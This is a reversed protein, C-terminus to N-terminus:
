ADTGISAARADAAVAPPIILDLGSEAILEAAVRDRSAVDDFALILPGTGASVRLGPRAGRFMTVTGVSLTTLEGLGLAVGEPAGIREVIVTSDIPIDPEAPEAPEAPQAGDTPEAPAADTPGDVAAHTPALERLVFRRVVASVDRVHTPGAPGRVVGTLRVRISDAGVLTSAGAPRAGLKRYIVYGGALGVGIVGSLAAALLAIAFAAGASPPTAGVDLLYASSVEIDYDDLSFSPAAAADAVAAPDRRIMGTLTVPVFEPDEPTLVLLGRGAAVDYIALDYSDIEDDDCEGDQDADTSCWPIYAVSRSGSVTVSTGVEPLPERLDHATPADSLTADIMYTPDLTVGLWALEEALLALDEAIFAPDEVVVGSYTGKFIEPPPGLSLITLGTRTETDVMWYAWAEGNEDADAVGDGDLDIYTEVYTSSLHGTVTAYAREGLGDGAAVDAAGLTRPGGTSGSEFGVVGLGLALLALAVAVLASGPRTDAVRSGASRAIARVGRDFLDTIAGAGSILRDLM